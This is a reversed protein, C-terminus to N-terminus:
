TSIDRASWNVTVADQSVQSLTVPIRLVSGEVVAQSVGVFAQPVTSKDKITASAYSAGLSM